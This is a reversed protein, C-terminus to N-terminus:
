KESATDKGSAQPPIQVCLARLRPTANGPKWSASLIAVRGAGSRSSSDRGAIGDRQLQDSTGGELGGAAYLYSTPRWAGAGGTGRDQTGGCCCRCCDLGSSVRL